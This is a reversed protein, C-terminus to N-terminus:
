LDVLEEEAIMCHIMQPAKSAVAAKVADRLAPLSDPRAYPLGYARCVGEWDPSFLHVGTYRGGYEEQQLQRIMGLCRNDLLLLVVPVNEQRLTGLEALSMKLGGDGVVAVVPSRVALSIGCAAPLGYGMTGLGANTFWQGPKRVPWAAAAWMQHQGVDTVVPIDGAAEGACRLIGLPDWGVPYEENRRLWTKEAPAVAAILRGLVAGADGTIHFYSQLNKNIEAPDIDIHIIEADDMGEAAAMSRDSFRTGVALLVDCEALARNARACGYLGIMGIHLIHDRPLAGVGMLTTVVPVGTKEALRLIGDGAALAGGGALILPRRAAGIKEATKKLAGAAVAASLERQWSHTKDWLFPHAERWRSVAERGLEPAEAREKLVDEPIDVLVPGPRGSSAVWFAERLAGPLEAASNVVVSHKTVSLSMGWIDAEQFADSGKRDRLIDGTVYVVPVSDMFSVAMGTLLNTAGPGSTAICVAPKGSARAYGDAMFAAQDERAPIVLRLGKRKRLADFIPLVSGGPYAFVTDIGQEELCDAFLRGGSRKM